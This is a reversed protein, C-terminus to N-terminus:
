REEGLKLEIVSELFNAWRELQPTEDLVPEYHKQLVLGRLFNRTMKMLQSVDEGVKKAQYNEIAQNEFTKNWESLTSKIREKLANDTRAAILIELLALYPPTNM